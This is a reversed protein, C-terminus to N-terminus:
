GYQQDLLTPNHPARRNPCDERPCLRCNVFGKDSQFWIGSVSKIPSMLFSDTLTVGLADPATGFLRFLPRQESIPWDTLSGPNMMATEGPHYAAMLHEGLAEIARELALEKITDAWFALLPDELSASWADLERGCTALFPFARYVGDLNVRLVRSTFLIGDLLVTSDGTHEVPCLKYLGKPRALASADRALRIVDAKFVSDDDIQLRDFLEGEEPAFPIDDLIVTIEQQEM